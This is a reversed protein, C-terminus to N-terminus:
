DTLLKELIEKATIAYSCHDIYWVAKYFHEVDNKHKLELIYVIEKLTSVKNFLREAEETWEHIPAEIIEYLHGSRRSM